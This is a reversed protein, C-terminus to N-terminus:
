LKNTFKKRYQIPTFTTQKKFFRILVSTEAYGLEDALGALSINTERLYQKALNLRIQALLQKFSTHEAKLRRQLTRTNIQLINAIHQESCQGSNLLPMMLQEIISGVSQSKQANLKDVYDTFFQKVYPDTQPPSSNLIRKDFEVAYINQDFFLPANFIQQYRTLDEPQKHIFFVAKPKWEQGAFYRILKVSLALSLDCSQRNRPQEPTLDDYVLLALENYIEISVKSNANHLNIHHKIVTLAELLSQCQRVLMGTPGLINIDQIAGLRLGFDMVGTDKAALQLATIFASAPLLDDPRQLQSPNIDVQQLLAIASSGLKEVLDSYGIFAAARILNNIPVGPTPQNNSKATDSITLKTDGLTM